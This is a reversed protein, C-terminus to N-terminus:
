AAASSCSTLRSCRSAPAAAAFAVHIRSDTTRLVSRDPRSSEAARSRGRDVRRRRARWPAKARGGDGQLGHVHHSTETSESEPSCSARLALIRSLSPAAHFGRKNDHRQQRQGDGDAHRITVHRRSCPLAGACPVRRAASSPSAALNALLGGAARRAQTVRFAATPSRVPGIASADISGGGIRESADCRELRDAIRASRSSLTRLRDGRRGPRRSDGRRRCASARRARWRRRSAHQDRQDEREQDDSAQIAGPM